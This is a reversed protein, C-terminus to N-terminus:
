RVAADSISVRHSEVTPRRLARPSIHTSPGTAYPDACALYNGTPREQLSYKRGSLVPRAPARKPPQMERPGDREEEGDVVGNRQSNPLVGEAPVGPDTAATTPEADRRAESSSDGM